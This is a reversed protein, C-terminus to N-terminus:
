AEALERCLTEFDGLHREVVARLIAQDLSQYQHVAV